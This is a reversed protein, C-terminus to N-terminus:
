NTAKLPFTNLVLKRAAVHVTRTVQKMQPKKLRIQHEKRFDNMVDQSLFGIYKVIQKKDLIPGHKSIIGDWRNETVYAIAEDIVTQVEPAITKVTKGKKVSSKEIFKDNKDKLAIIVGRTTYTPQIPKLVHGERANDKLEEFGLRGPITSPDANHKKSWTLCEDFTGEFLINAHFLDVQHFLGLAEYYNMYEAKGDHDVVRIDFAIFEHRPCYQVGKQIQSMIKQGRYFGGFLEGYVAIYSVDRRNSKYINMLQKVKKGVRGVIYQCNYFANWDKFNELFSTRKGATVIKGDTWLSFNAGHVKELVCWQRNPDVSARIEEIFKERYSNEISHFRHFEM